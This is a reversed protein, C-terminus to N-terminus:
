GSNMKKKMTIKIENNIATTSRKSKNSTILKMDSVLHHMM